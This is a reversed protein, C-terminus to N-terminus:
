LQGHAEAAQVCVGQNVLDARVSIIPKYSPNLPSQYFIFLFHDTANQKNM